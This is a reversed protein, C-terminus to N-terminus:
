RWFICAAAIIAAKGLLTAAGACHLWAHPESASKKAVVSVWQDRTTLKKMGDTTKEFADGKSCVM